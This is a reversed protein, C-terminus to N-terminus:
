DVTARATEVSLTRNVVEGAPMSRFFRAPVKLLHAVVGPSLTADSSDRLRIVFLDRVLVLIAAGVSAVAFAALIGATQHLNGWPIAFEFLASTAAPLLLSTLGTIVALLILSWIPWRQRRVSWGILSYWPKGQPVDSFVEVAPAGPPDNRDLPRIVRTQSLVTKAGFGGPAVVVPRGDKRAVVPSSLDRWWQGKLSKPAVMLGSAAAVADAPPLNREILPDPVRVPNTDAATAALSFADVLPDSFRPAGLMAAAPHQAALIKDVPEELPDIAEAM